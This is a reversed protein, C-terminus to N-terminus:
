HDWVALPFRQKSGSKPRKSASTEQVPWPGIFEVFLLVSQLLDRCCSPLFRDFTRSRERNDRSTVVIIVGVEEPFKPLIRWPFFFILFRSIEKVEEEFFMEVHCHANKENLSRYRVEM